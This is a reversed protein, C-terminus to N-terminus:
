WISLAALPSDTSRRFRAPNSRSSKWPTWVRTLPWRVSTAKFITRDMWLQGNMSNPGGNISISSLQIGRDGFGSNTPGANSKVGPTLLTLALANRGNLPLELVHRNDIVKGVSSTGTDVLPAGGTVEISEAVQGIELRLDVQARQDVQLVLGSLVTKRFGDKGASVTYKGVNLNPASFYGDDNSETVFVLNTDTNVVRITVGPIAAATSDTVSGLITGRGQQGYAAASLALSILTAVLLKINM